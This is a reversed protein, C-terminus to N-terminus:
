LLGQVPPVGGHKGQAQYWDLWWQPLGGTGAGSGTGTGGTGTGGTGDGSGPPKWGPGFYLPGFFKGMNPDRSLATFVTNWEDSRSRGGMPLRPEYKANPDLFNDM